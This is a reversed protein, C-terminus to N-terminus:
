CLTQDEELNQIVRGLLALVQSVEEPAFGGVMLAEVEQFSQRSLEMQERGKETLTILRRRADSGSVTREVLKKEALRDLIGNATPPQVRLFETLERQPASGGHRCLYMLVHTQAPTLDYRSMRADMRARALHAARGLMPGMLNGEHM